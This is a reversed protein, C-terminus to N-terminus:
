ASTFKFDSPRPTSANSDAVHFLELFDYRLVEIAVRANRSRFGRHHEVSHRSVLNRDHIRIEGSAASGVGLRM